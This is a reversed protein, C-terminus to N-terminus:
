DCLYFGDAEMRIEANPMEGTNEAERYNYANLQPDFETFCSLSRLFLDTQAQDESTFKVKYEIGM